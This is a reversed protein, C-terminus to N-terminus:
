MEGINKAITDVGAKGNDGGIDEEEEAAKVASNVQTRGGKCVRGRRKRREPSEGITLSYIRCSSDRGRAVGIRGRTESKSDTKSRYL